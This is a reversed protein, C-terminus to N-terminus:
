RELLRRFVRRGWGKALAMDDAWFKLGRRLVLNVYEECCGKSENWKGGWKKKMSGMKPPTGRLGILIKKNDVSLSSELRTGFM